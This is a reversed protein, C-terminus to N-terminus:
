GNTVEDTDTFEFELDGVDIHPIVNAEEVVVPNKIKMWGTMNGGTAATYICAYTLTGWAGTTKNFNIEKANSIKNNAPNGMLQTLSQDYRGLLVRAYGSGSPETAGTGDVNPKTKSLGLYATGAATVTTTKGFIANLLSNTMTTTLM